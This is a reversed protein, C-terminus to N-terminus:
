EEPELVVKIGEGGRLIEIGEHVKSLPLRHSVIRELPLHGYEMIKATRGFSFRGIFGGLIQVEKKLALSREKNGEFLNQGRFSINGETPRYMGIATYAVTSKGSGSEGVLGFTEGERIAFSIGDVAKHENFSKHLEQAVLFEEAM